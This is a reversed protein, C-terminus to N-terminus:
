KPKSPTAPASRIEMGGEVARLGFPGLLPMAYVEPAWIGVTSSIFGANGMM